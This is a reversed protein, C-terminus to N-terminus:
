CYVVNANGMFSLESGNAYTTPSSNYGWMAVQKGVPIVWNLRVKLKRGGDYVLDEDIAGGALSPFVGLVRVRRDAKERALMDGQNISTTAELCEEIEASTYDGLAVGFMLSGMITAPIDNWSWVGDISLLRYKADSTSIM